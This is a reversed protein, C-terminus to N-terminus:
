AAAKAAAEKRIVTMVAHKAYRTIRETTSGAVTTDAFRRHQAGIVLLDADIQDAVALVATAADGHVVVESYRTNARVRPNVWARFENRVDSSIQPESGECVHMVVLQADFTQALDSAKELASRAIETFNVPCLITRIGAVADPRFKAPNVTLVPVDTKRLVYEAVSGLIACRIGRRGHTGMIILGADIDRATQVIASEPADDAFLTDADPAHSAAYDRLRHLLTRRAESVNEFYYGIPHEEALWSIEDAYLFTLKAGLKERFLLAHRLALDGFSSLDTPVLIRMARDSKSTFM